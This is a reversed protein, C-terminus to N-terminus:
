TSHGQLHDYILQGIAYVYRKTMLTSEAINFLFFLAFVRYALLAGYEAAKWAAKIYSRM